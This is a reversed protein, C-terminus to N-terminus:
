NKKTKRNIYELGYKEIKFIETKFESHRQKIRKIENQMKVIEAAISQINIFIQKKEEPTNEVDRYCLKEMSLSRRLNHMQKKQEQCLEYTRTLLKNLESIQNNCKEM